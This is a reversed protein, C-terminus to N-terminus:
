IKEEVTPIMWIITPFGLRFPDKGEEQNLIQSEIGQCTGGDGLLSLPAAHISM